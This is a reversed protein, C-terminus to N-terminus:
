NLSTQAATKGAPRKVPAARPAVSQPEADAAPVPPPTVMAAQEARARLAAGAARADNATLTSPKPRWNAVEESAAQAEAPKLRSVVADRRRAAEADGKAAALAYWKYAAVQDRGIGLGNEYLVGLNFQSDALGREAAATFWQIATPYDPTQGNQTGAAIVALNHMAKTNGDSAAREYWYRAAAPDPSGGVGREFLTGLRYQSPVFGARASRDYWTMAQRFDQKVGKGEAFRAAIEFQAEPDGKQAALRLSLPGILAPPLEVAAQPIAAASPLSATAIHAANGPAPAQATPKPAVQPVMHSPVQLPAPQQLAIGQVATSAPPPAGVNSASAVPAAKPVMGVAQPPQGTSTELLSRPRPQQNLPPQDTAGRAPIAAPAERPDPQAPTTERVAAPTPADTEDAFRPTRAPGQPEGTAAAPPPVQQAIPAREALKPTGNLLRDKIFFEFLLGVAIIAIGVGAVLIGRKALTGQQKARPESDEEPVAVVTPQAMQRTSRQPIPKSAPATDHPEPQRPVRQPPVQPQTDSQPQVPAASRVPRPKMVPREVPEEVPQGFAAAAAPISVEPLESDQIRVGSQAYAEHDTVRRGPHPGRENEVYVLDPDRDHHAVSAPQDAPEPQLPAGMAVAAQARLPDIQDIRDILRVLAEQMTDLMSSTQHEERRREDAISAIMAQMEDLRATDFPASKGHPALSAFREAVRDAATDVLAAVDPTEHLPSTGSASMDSQAAEAFSSLKRLEEEIGDIRRIANRTDDLRKSLDGIQAEIVHLGALDARTAVEAMAQGFSDEFAGFRRDLDAIRDGPNTRALTDEVRIAIDALREDLWARDVSLHALIDDGVRHETPGAPMVTELHAPVQPAIREEAVDLPKAADSMVPERATPATPLPDQLFFAQAAERPGSSDAEYMRTLAEASAADWVDDLMAPIAGHAQVPKLETVSTTRGGTRGLDKAPM